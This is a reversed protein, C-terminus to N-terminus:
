LSELEEKPAEADTLAQTGAITGTLTQLKRSRRRRTVEGTIDYRDFVRRSKRRTMKM